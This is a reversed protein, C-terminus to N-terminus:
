GVTATTRTPAQDSSRPARVWEVAAAVAVGAAIGLLPLVPVKFRPDGFFTLPVVVTVLTSWLFVWRAFSDHRRAVVLTVFGTVGLVSLGLYAWDAISILTSYTSPAMWADSMYSQVAILGDYDNRYTYYSRRWLLWPMRGVDHRAFRLARSRLVRDHRVEGAPGALESDNVKASGLLDCAHNVGFAGTAHPAYAVCLNDGTNTSLPVFANMQVANRITWGGIVVVLVGITIGGLRLLGRLDHDRLWWLVLLPIVLPLIIPRVMVALAFLVAFVVVRVISAGHNRGGGLLVALAALFLAMYLTESLLAATHFVLNPYFAVAAAAFVGALPSWLRRGVVAASVSMSAGLGAQVVGGLLPVDNTLFTHRSVWAVAGLFVPYGPPYYATPKGSFTSVYGNGHAINQAYGLYRAPDYLGKPTHAAYAVWAVRVALAGLAIGITWWWFPERWWPGTASGDAQRRMPPVSGRLAAPGSVLSLSRVVITPSIGAPPHLVPGTVADPGGTM